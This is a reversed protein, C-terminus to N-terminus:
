KAATCLLFQATKKKSEKKHSESKEIKMLMGILVKGDKRRGDERDSAAQM